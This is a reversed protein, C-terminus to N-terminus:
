RLLQSIMSPMQNAQSLVTIGAQLMTNQKTMNASEKAIDADIIRGKAMSLNEAINGLNNITSQFRNQVAGLEARVTGVQEIMKDIGQISSAANSESLVNGLYATDMNSKNIQVPIVNPDDGIIEQNVNLDFGASQMMNFLGTISYRPEGNSEPSVSGTGLNINDAGDLTLGQLENAIHMLSQLRGENATTMTVNIETSSNETVTVGSIGIEDLIAEMSAKLGQQDGDVTIGNFEWRNTTPPTIPVPTTGDHDSDGVLDVTIASLIEYVTRLSKNLNTINSTSLVESNLGLQELAKDILATAESQTASAAKDADMPQYVTLLPTDVEAGVQFNIGKNLQDFLKEGKGYTTTEMIRNLEKTLAQYEKNLAERDATSNTGNKAQVALDRQRQLINTFEQLAGEATQSMSIGDNANRQAVGLGRIISGMRTSIQLGAADDKAGNIRLGTSLRNLSTNLSNQTKLLNRRANM